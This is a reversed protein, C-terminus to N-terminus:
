GRFVRFGRFTKYGTNGQEYGERQERNMSNLSLTRQFKVAFPAFYAFVFPLPGLLNEGRVLISHGRYSWLPELFFGLLTKVM